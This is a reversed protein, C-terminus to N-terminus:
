GGAQRIPPLPVFPGPPLAFGTEELFECLDIGNIRFYGDGEYNDAVLVKDVVFAILAEWDEGEEELEIAFEEEEFGPVMQVLTEGSAFLTAVAPNEVITQLAQQAKQLLMGNTLGNWKMQQVSVCHHEALARCLRWDLCEDILIRM